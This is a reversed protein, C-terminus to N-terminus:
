ELKDVKDLSSQDVEMFRRRERLVGVFFGTCKGKEGASDVVGTSVALPAAELICGGEDEYATEISRSWGTGCFM